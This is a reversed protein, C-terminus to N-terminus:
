DGYAEDLDKVFKGYYELRFGVSETVANAAAVSAFYLKDHNAQEPYLAVGIKVGGSLVSVQNPDAKLLASQVKQAVVPGDDLQSIRMAMVFEHDSVNALLDNDRLTDRLIDSLLKLEDEEAEENVLVSVFALRQFYRRADRLMMDLAKAFSHPQLLGTVANTHQQLTADTQCRIVMSKVWSPLSHLVQELAWYHMRQEIETVFKPSFLCFTFWNKQGDQISVLDCSDISYDGLCEQWREWDARTAVNSERAFARSPSAVFTALSQPVRSVNGLADGLSPWDQYNIVRWQTLEQDCTLVCVKLNNPFLEGISGIMQEVYAIPNMSCAVQSLMLQDVKRLQLLFDRQMLLEHVAEQSTEDKTDIEMFGM